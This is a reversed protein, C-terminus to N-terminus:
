AVPNQDEEEGDERQTQTTALRHDTSRILLVREATSRRTEPLLPGSIRDNRREAIASRRRLNRRESRCHHSALSCVSVPDKSKNTTKM